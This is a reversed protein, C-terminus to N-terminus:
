DCRSRASGPGGESKSLLVTLSGVSILISGLVLTNYGIGMQALADNM